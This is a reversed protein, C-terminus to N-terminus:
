SRPSLDLNQVVVDILVEEGNPYVIAMGRLEDPSFYKDSEGIRDRVFKDADPFHQVLWGLQGWAKQEYLASALDLIDNLGILKVEDEGKSEDAKVALEILQWHGTEFALSFDFVDPQLARPRAAPLQEAVYYLIERPL